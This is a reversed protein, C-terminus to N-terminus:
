TNLWWPFLLSLTLLFFLLGPWSVLSMPNGRIGNAMPDGPQKHLVTGTNKLPIFRCHSWTVTPPSFCPGVPLGSFSFASGLCGMLTPCDSELPPEGAWTLVSGPLRNGPHFFLPSSYRPSFFPRFLVVSVLIVRPFNSLLRFTTPGSNAGLLLTL